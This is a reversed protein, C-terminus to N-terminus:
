EELDSALQQLDKKKYELLLNDSIVSDKTRTLSAIKKQLRLTRKELELRWASHLEDTKKDLSVISKIVKNKEKQFAPNVKGVGGKSVLLEVKHIFGLVLSNNNKIYNRLRDFKNM